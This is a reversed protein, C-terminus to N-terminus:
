GSLSICLQTYLIETPRYQKRLLVLTGSREFSRGAQDTITARFVYTGEPMLTGKFRGDWGENLDETHFMMEGWRNFIQMEFRDVYQGFVNFVDNLGDANPTFATPHFLNPEKIIRITNSISQPIGGQ